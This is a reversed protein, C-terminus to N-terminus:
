DDSAVSKTERKFVRRYLFANLSNARFLYYCGMIISGIFQLGDFLGGIDGIWDLISYISRKYMIREPSLFILLSFFDDDIRTKTVFFPEQALNYWGGTNPAQFNLGMWTEESEM